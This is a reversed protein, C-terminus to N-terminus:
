QEKLNPYNKINKLGSPFNRWSTTNFLPLIYNQPSETSLEKINHILFGQSLHSSWIIKLIVLKLIYFHVKGALIEEIPGLDLPKPKGNFVEGVAKRSDFDKQMSNQTSGRM